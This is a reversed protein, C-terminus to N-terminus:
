TCKGFGELPHGKDVKVVYHFGLIVRRALKKLCGGPGTPASSGSRALPVLCVADAHAGDALRRHRLHWLDRAWVRKVRWRDTLQGFVTEMRSRVRGVVASWRHAPQESAKRLPALLVMGVKRLAAQVAPLWSTRDGLLLRSTGATVEWVIEGEPVNAPALYIQTIVGPWCLRMHLRFGSFTQRCTHDCGTSATDDFRRCRSARAFQCVPIPQSMVIAVM